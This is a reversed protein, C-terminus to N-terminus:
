EVGKIFKFPLADNENAFENIKNIFDNVHSKVFELNNSVIEKDVIKVYFQLVGGANVSANMDLIPVKNGNEDTVVLEGNFGKVVKIIEM